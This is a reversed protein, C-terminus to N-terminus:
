IETRLKSLLDQVEVFEEMASVYRNYLEESVEIETGFRETAPRLEYVPYWEDWDLKFKM